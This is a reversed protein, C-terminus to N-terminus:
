SSQPGLVGRTTRLTKTHLKTFHDSLKHLETIVMNTNTSITSVTRMGGQFKWFFSFSAIVSSSFLFSAFLTLIPHWGHDASFWVSQCNNENDRCKIIWRRTRMSRSQKEGWTTYLTPRHTQRYSMVLSSSEYMKGPSPADWVLPSGGQLRQPLAQTANVSPKKPQMM